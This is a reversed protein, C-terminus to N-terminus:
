SIERRQAALLAGAVIAATEGRLIGDGLSVHQSSLELEEPSFGGEPGIAICTHTSKIRAGDPEALAAAYHKVVDALAYPLTIEPLWLRRSQMAAERVIRRLRETHKVAKVDDWRVVAHKTDAIPVIRDIGIETLKRVVDDPRDGKTPAFAVTLLPEPRPETILESILELEGDSQVTALSWSGQGDSVSVTEHSGVRLVRLIHHRDDESLHPTSLNDVFVHAASHRLQPKM